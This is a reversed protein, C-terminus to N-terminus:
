SVRGLAPDRGTAAGAVDAGAPSAGECSRWAAVTPSGAQELTQGADSVSLHGDVEVTTTVSPHGLLRSVVEVQDLRLHHRRGEHPRPRRGAPGHGRRGVGRQVSGGVLDTFAREVSSTSTVM